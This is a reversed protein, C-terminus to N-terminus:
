DQILKLLREVDDPMHGDWEPATPLEKVKFREWYMMHFHYSYQLGAEVNIGAIFYDNFMTGDKHVKSKWAKEKNQNCIVLFLILRHKYLEDFSHYGDSVKGIKDENMLDINRKIIFERM